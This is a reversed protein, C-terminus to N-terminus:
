CSIERVKESISTSFKQDIKNKSHSSQCSRHFMSKKEGWRREFYFDQEVHKSVLSFSIKIIFRGEQRKM